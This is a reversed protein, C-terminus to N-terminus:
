DLRFVLKVIPALEYKGLEKELVWIAAGHDKSLKMNGRFSSVQFIQFHISVGREVYDYDGIKEGPVIKLSTEENVERIVAEKAEEGPKIKGGPFDWLNPFFKSNSSRKLLLYGKEKKILAKAVEIM